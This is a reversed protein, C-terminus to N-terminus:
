SPEKNIMLKLHQNSTTQYIKSILSQIKPPMYFDCYQLYITRISKYCYDGIDILNNLNLSYYERLNKELSKTAFSYMITFDTVHRNITMGFSYCNNTLKISKIKEYEVSTINDWWRIYNETLSEHYFAQDLDWLNQSILNYEISPTTSFIITKNTPDIITASFHHIEHLGNITKLVNRLFSRNEFLIDLINQHLTSKNKKEMTSSKLLQLNKEM